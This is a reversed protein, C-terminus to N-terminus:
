HQLIFPNSLVERLRENHEGTSVSVNNPTTIVAETLVNHGLSSYDGGSFPFFFIMNRLFNFASTKPFLAPKSQQMERLWVIVIQINSPAPNGCRQGYQIERRNCITKLPSLLTRCLVVYHYPPRNTPHTGMVTQVVTTIDSIFVEGPTQFACRPCTVATFIFSILVKYRMMQGWQKGLDKYYNCVFSSM